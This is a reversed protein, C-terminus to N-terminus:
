AAASAAIRDLAAEITLDGRNETSRTVLKKAIVVAVISVAVKEIVAQGEPTESLHVGAPVVFDPNTSKIMVELESNQLYYMTSGFKDYTLDEKTEVLVKQLPTAAFPKVSQLMATLNAISSQYIPLRSYEIGNSLIWFRKATSILALQERLERPWTKVGYVEFWVAPTM